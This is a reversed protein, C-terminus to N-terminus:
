KKSSNRIFYINRIFFNLLFTELLTIIKSIVVNISFFNVLIKLSLTGIFFTFVSLLISYYFQKVQSINKIRFVYIQLLLIAISNGLLFALLNSLTIFKTFNYFINFTLFDLICAISVIFFYRIFRININNNVM